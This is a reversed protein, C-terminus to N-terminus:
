VAEVDALRYTYEGDHTAYGDAVLDGLTDLIKGSPMGVDESLEEITWPPVYLKGRRDALVRRMTADPFYPALHRRGKDTSWFIRSYRNGSLEVNPHEEMIAECASMIVGASLGSLDGPVGANLDITPYRAFYEAVADVADDDAGGDGALAAREDAPSLLYALHKQKRQPDGAPWETWM